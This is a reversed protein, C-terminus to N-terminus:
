EGTNLTDVVGIDVVQGSVIRQSSSNRIKIVDGKHGDKLAIGDASATINGEHSVLTVPQDRKVLLPELLQSHTLPKGPQLTRKSTLGIAEDLNMILGNHQTSINYKKLELDDATLVSNREIIGRPMVVAVYVDPRVAVSVKWGQADACKVDFNMRSAALEPPSALEAHPTSSCPPSTAIASPIFVNFTYRYNQWQQKQALADVQQGAAEIVQANIQERASHQVPHVAAYGPLAFMCALIVEASFLFISKRRGMLIKM